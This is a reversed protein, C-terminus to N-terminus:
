IMWQYKYIFTLAARLYIYAIIDRKTYKSRLVSCVWNMPLVCKEDNWQGNAGDLM